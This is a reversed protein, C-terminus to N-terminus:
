SGTEIENMNEFSYQIVYDLYEFLTSKCSEIRKKLIEKEKKELALTEIYGVLSALEGGLDNHITVSDLHIDVARQLRSNNKQM